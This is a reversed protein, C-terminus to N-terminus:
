RDGRGPRIQGRIEGGTSAATHVNAYALGQRILAVVEAFDGAAIQQGINAGGIAVVDAAKLVGSVSGEQPCTPTTAIPSPSTAQCLWLAIGGNVNRQAIHIHAQAVPTLLGAYSLEYAIEGADEDIELKIAGRAESSVVPVEQHPQLVASFRRRDDDDSAAAGSLCVATLLATLTALERKRTM